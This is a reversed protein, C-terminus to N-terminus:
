TNVAFQVAERRTRSHHICLIESLLPNNKDTETEYTYLVILLTLIGEDLNLLLQFNLSITPIIESNM